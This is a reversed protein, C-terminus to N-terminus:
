RRPQTAGSRAKEAAAAAEAEAARKAAEDADMVEPAAHDAAAPDTAQAEAAADAATEAGAKPDKPTAVRVRDSRASSGAPAPTGIPLASITTQQQQLTPLTRKAVGALEKDALGAGNQFLTLLEERTATMRKLYEGDFESPPKTSVSHVLRAREDDLRTPVDLGRARAALALQANIKEHSRAADTAFKKVGPTPSRSQALKSIEVAAMGDLTAETIFMQEAGASAPSEAAVSALPWCVPSLLAVVLVRNKV